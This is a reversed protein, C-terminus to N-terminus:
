ALSARLRAALAAQEAEGVDLLGADWSLAALQQEEFPRGPPLPAVHWHVHRNAERSGLSLIYIRETPLVRRVAEAVRYVIRQLALYEDLEFDATVEERHERPAVITSGLLTPFANLFRSRASTRTCWTIRTSRTAPSWPACSAAGALV